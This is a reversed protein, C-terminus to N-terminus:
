WPLTTGAANPSVPTQEADPFIERFLSLMSMTSRRDAPEYLRGPPGLTPPLAFGHPTMSHHHFTWDVRAADMEAFFRQKSDDPVLQDLAGNEILVVADTNYNNDCTKLTPRKAGYAAPNPDEGTQLLGHFSVVGGVNLGGRICELVAMGGFCYGIAAPAVSSDVCPHALGEQLWADLLARFKEHDHDIAVMGEFCKKQFAPVMSPDTPFNREDAPVTNGYLDIALGVYGTRALFEAVHVDFFKLGQYNHVVIVMPKPGASAPPAVLHGMYENDRFGLPIDSRELDPAPPWFDPSSFTM